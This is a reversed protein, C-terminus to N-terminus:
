LYNQEKVYVKSMFRLHSDLLKLENIDTNQTFTRFQSM